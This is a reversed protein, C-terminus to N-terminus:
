HDLKILLRYIHGPKKIGIKELDVYNLPTIGEQLANIYSDIHYLNKSIIKM